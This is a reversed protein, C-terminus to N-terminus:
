VWKEILNLNLKIKKNIKKIKKNSVEMKSQFDSLKSVLRNEIFVKKGGGDEDKEHPLIVADEEDDEAEMMVTNYIDVVSVVQPIHSVTLTFQQVQENSPEKM